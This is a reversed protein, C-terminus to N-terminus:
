CFDCFVNLLSYLKLSVLDIQYDELRWWNLADSSDLNWFFYKDQFHNSAETVKDWVIETLKFLQRRPPADPQVSIKHLYKRTKHMKGKKFFDKWKEASKPDSWIQDVAPKYRFLEVSAAMEMGISMGKYNSMSQVCWQHEVFIWSVKWSLQWIIKSKFFDM